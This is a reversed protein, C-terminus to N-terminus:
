NNEHAFSYIHFFLSICLDKNKKLKIAATGEASTKTSIKCPGEKDEAQETLKSKQLWIM